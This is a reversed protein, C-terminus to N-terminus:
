SLKTWAPILCDPNVKILIVSKIFCYLLFQVCITLFFCLTSVEPLLLCELKSCLLLIICLIRLTQCRHMLIFKIVGAWPRMELTLKCQRRETSACEQGGQAVYCLFQYKQTKLQTSFLRVLQLILRTSTFLHYKQVNQWTLVLQSKGVLQIM